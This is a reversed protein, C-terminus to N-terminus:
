QKGALHPNEAIFKAMIQMKEMLEKHEDVTMSVMEEGPEAPPEPESSVISKRLKSEAEQLAAEYERTAKRMAEDYTEIAQKVQSKGM